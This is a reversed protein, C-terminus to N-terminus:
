RRFLSKAITVDFSYNVLKRGEGKFTKYPTSTSEMVVPLIENRALDHLYVETSNLLHHMRLSEEDSMWSTHLTIRKTIENASNTKQRDYLGGREIITRTLSDDERSAGEILLSDWGGFANRYYLVYRSCSDVIVYKVGNVSISAADDWQSPSVVLTGSGSSKLSRAFDLNFDNNFDASIGITVNKFEKRGDRKTVIIQASEQDICTWLLWQKREIRLNIPAAMGDKYINRFTDYSWDNVFRVRAVESYGGVASITQVVFEVPLEKRSFGEVLSPFSSTLWDACVDNILVKINKEGPRKWAKGHYIEHVSEDIVYGITYEVSENVGMDVLFDKWIPQVM